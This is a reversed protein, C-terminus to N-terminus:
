ERVTSRAFSEHVDTFLTGIGTRIEQARAADPDAAVASRIREYAAMDDYEWVALIEGADTVWRGVLRAGHRRQVPLLYNNFFDHFADATEPLSQYRRIGYIV